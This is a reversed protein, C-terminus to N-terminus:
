TSDVRIHRLNFVYCWSQTPILKKLYVAIWNFRSLKNTLNPQLYAREALGADDM